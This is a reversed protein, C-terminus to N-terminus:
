LLEALLTGFTGMYWSLMRLSACVAKLYTIRHLTEDAEFKPETLENFSGELAFIPCLITTLTGNVLSTLAARQPYAFLNTHRTKEEGNGETTPTERV